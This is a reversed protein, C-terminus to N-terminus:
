FSIDASLSSRRPRKALNTTEGEVLQALDIDCQAKDELESGSRARGRRQEDLPSAVARSGTSPRLQDSWGGDHGHVQDPPYHTPVATTRAKCSPRRHPLPSLSPGRHARNM